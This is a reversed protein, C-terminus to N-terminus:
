AVPVGMGYALGVMVTYPRVGMDARQGAVVLYWSCLGVPHMPGWLGMCGVRGYGLDLIWFGFDL